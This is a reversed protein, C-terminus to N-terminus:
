ADATWGESAPNLGHDVTLALVARGRPRAWDLTLRLLALSDSGGSFGVALPTTAGPRLRRALVAAFVSSLDRPGTM